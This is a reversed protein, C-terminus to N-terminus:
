KQQAFTTCILLIFTWDKWRGAMEFWRGGNFVGNLREGEWLCWMVGVGEPSKVEGPVGPKVWKGSLGAFEANVCNSPTQNTTTQRISPVVWECPHKPQFEKEKGGPYKKPPVFSMPFIHHKNFTHTHTHPLKLLLPLYWTFMLQLVSSETPINKRIKPFHNGFNVLVSVRWAFFGIGIHYPHKPSSELSLQKQLCETKM